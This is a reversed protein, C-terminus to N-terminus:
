KLFSVHKLYTLLIVQTEMRRKKSQHYKALVNKRQEQKLPEYIKDFELLEDKTYKIKCIKKNMIHKKLNFISGKYPCYKCNM